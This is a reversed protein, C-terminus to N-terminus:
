TQAVAPATQQRHDNVESQAPPVDGLPQMENILTERQLRALGVQM